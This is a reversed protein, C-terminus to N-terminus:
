RPNGSAAAPVQSWRAADAYMTALDNRKLFADSKGEKSMEDLIRRVEAYNRSAEAEKGTLRLTTALLFRSRAQLMPSGLKESRGFARNLEEQAKSYDKQNLHAEGLYISCELSLYKLGIADAQEALGRLVALSERSNGQKVAVKALNFKSVLTLRRNTTQSAVQLAQQYFKAAAKLDGQYFAADGQFNLNQGVLSLNKVERSLAV